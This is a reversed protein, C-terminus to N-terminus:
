VVWWFPAILLSSRHIAKLLYCKSQFWLDAIFQKKAVWLYEHLKSYAHTLMISIWSSRNIRVWNLMSKYICLMRFLNSEYAQENQIMFNLFIRRISIFSVLSEFWEDFNIAKNTASNVFFSSLCLCCFFALYAFM